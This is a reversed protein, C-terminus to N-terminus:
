GASALAALHAQFAAGEPAITSPKGDWGALLRLNIGSGPSGGGSGGTTSPVCQTPDTPGAPEWSYALYSVNNQDAWGMFAVM